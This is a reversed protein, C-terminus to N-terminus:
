AESRRLERAARLLEAAQDVGHQGILTAIAADAALQVSTDINTLTARFTDITTTIDKPIGPILSM